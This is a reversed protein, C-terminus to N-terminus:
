GKQASCGMWAMLASRSFRYTRGIRQHPIHGRGAAEYLQNRGIKLFEAAEEATLIDTSHKMDEPCTQSKRATMAAAMCLEGGFHGSVM